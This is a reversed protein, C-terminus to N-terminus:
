WYNEKRWAKENTVINVIEGGLKNDRSALSNRDVIVFSGKKVWVLSRFRSHMEVLSRSGTGTEVEYLNNGSAKLVRTM